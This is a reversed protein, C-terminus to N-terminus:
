NYKTFYHSPPSLSTYVLTLRPNVNMGTHLMTLFRSLAEIDPLEEDIAVCTTLEDFLAQILLGLSITERTMLAKVIPPPNHRDSRM